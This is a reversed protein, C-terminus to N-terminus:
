TTPLIVRVATTGGPPQDSFELIARISEARQRMLHLGLGSEKPPRTFPM